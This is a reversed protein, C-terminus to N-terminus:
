WYSLKVNNSSLKVTTWSKRIAWSVVAKWKYQRLCHIPGVCVCVCVCVYIYIHIYIYQVCIYTCMCCSCAFLGLLKLLIFSAADVLSNAWDAIGHSFVLLVHQRFMDMKCICSYTISFNLQMYNSTSQVQKPKTPFSLFIDEGPQWQEGFCNPWELTSVVVLAGDSCTKKVAPSVTFAFRLESAGDVTSLTTKM